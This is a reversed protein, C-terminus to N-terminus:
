LRVIVKGNERDSSAALAEKVGKFPFMKSIM